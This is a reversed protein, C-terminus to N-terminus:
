STMWTSVAPLTLVGAEPTVAMVTLVTIGVAGALGTRVLRELVVGGIGLKLTAPM